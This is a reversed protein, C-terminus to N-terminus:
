RNIVVVERAQHLTASEPRPATVARLAQLVGQCDEEYSWQEIKARSAQGMSRRLEEDGALRALCGTLANIDGAPYVLGNDQVLDGAAGVQDSVVVPLGFCMAENVVLGWREFRSPLVFIDAAAFYGGLLTQNQFGAFVVNKMGLARARAELQARLPGDGLYVLSFQERNPLREVALLVDMPSKQPILKGSFLITVADAPLSLQRRLDAKRGLHRNAQALFLQNNVAYPVLFIRENEVGFDQYFERNYRGVALFGAVCGFLNKLLLRKLPRKWGPVVQILNTEGRMLVPVRASFAAIMAIWASLNAWGHVWVADFGGHRIRRILGPNMLGAPRSPDPFPSRNPVFEFQYGDLLPVDWAIKKGFGRDLYTSLGQDSCYFVTLDIEPCAALRQFLPGQYQIVHSAVIALRFRTTTRNSGAM